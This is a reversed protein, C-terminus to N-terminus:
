EPIIPKRALGLRIAERHIEPLIWCVDEPSLPETYQKPSIDINYAVTKREQADFIYVEDYTSENALLVLDALNDSTHSVDDIGGTPYYQSIEFLWYRRSLDDKQPETNEM